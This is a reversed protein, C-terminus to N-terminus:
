RIKLYGSGHCVGCTYTRQKNSRAYFNSGVGTQYWDYELSHGVGDCQSCPLFPAQSTTNCKNIEEETATGLVLKNTTNIWAIKYKRTECSFNMVYIIQGGKELFANKPIIKKRDKECPDIAAVEADKKKKQEVVPDVGNKKNKEANYEDILKQAMATIKQQQDYSLSEKLKRVEIFYPVDLAMYFACELDVAAVELFTRQVVERIKEEPIDERKLAYPFKRGLGRATTKNLFLPKYLRVISDIAEEPTNTIPKFFDVSLLLQDTNWLKENIWSITSLYSVKHTGTGKRKEFNTLLSDIKLQTTKVKEGQIGKPLDFVLVQWRWDTLGTRRNTSQRILKTNVGGPFQIAAQYEGEGENTTSLLPGALASWDKKPNEVINFVKDLTTLLNFAFSDKIINNTNTTTKTQASITVTFLLFAPILINKMLTSFITLLIKGLIGM